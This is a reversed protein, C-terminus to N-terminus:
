RLCERSFVLIKIRAFSPKHDGGVQHGVHARAPAGIPAPITDLPISRARLLPSKNEITLKKGQLIQALASMGFDSGDGSSGQSWRQKAAVRSRSATYIKQLETTKMKDGERDMRELLQEGSLTSLAQSMELIRRDAADAM